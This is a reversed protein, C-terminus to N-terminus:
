GQNFAKSGASGADKSVTQGQSKFSAKYEDFEEPRYVSVTHGDVKTNQVQAPRRAQLAAHHENMKRGAAIEANTQDVVRPALPPPPADPPPPQRAALVKLTFDRKVNDHRAVRQLEAMQAESILQDQPNDAVAATQDAASIPEAFNIPASKDPSAGLGTEVTEEAQPTQNPM